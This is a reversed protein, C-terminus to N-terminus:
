RRLVSTEHNANRDGLSTRSQRIQNLAAEIALAHDDGAMAAIRDRQLRTGV